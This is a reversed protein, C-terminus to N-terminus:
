EPLRTKPLRRHWVVGQGLDVSAVEILGGVSAQKNDFVSSALSETGVLSDAVAAMETVSYGGLSDFLPEVYFDQIRDELERDLEELLEEVNQVGYNNLLRELEEFISNKMPYSIGRVVSLIGAQQAFVQLTGSHERSVEVSSISSELCRSYVRGIKLRAVEPFVQKKGYGVFGLESALDVSSPNCVRAAVVKQALKRNAASLVSDHFKIHDLIEQELDFGTTTLSAEFDQSSIKEAGLGALAEELLAELCRKDSLNLKRQSTEGNAGLERSSKLLGHKIDELIEILRLRFSENKSEQDFLRDEKQLWRRFSIAYDGVKSFRQNLTKAWEFLAIEIPIGQLHASGSLLVLVPHETGVEFIKTVNPTVKSFYPGELTVVTDSAIVAGAKSLIAVQSTM